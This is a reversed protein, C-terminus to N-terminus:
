LEGQVGENPKNEEGSDGSFDYGVISSAYDKWNKDAKYWEVSAEPVYIKMENHTGYFVRSRLLPPLESECYVSKLASCYEFARENILLTNEPITISSLNKCNGFAYKGICDINNNLVVSKLHDYGYFAHPLIETVTDPIVIDTTLKGNVYLRAEDNLSLPNTSSYNTWNISCWHEISDVYVAILNTCDSFAFSGVTHVNDGLKVTRINDCNLFAYPGIETVGNGIILETVSDLNYFAYSSINAVDDPIALTSAIPENDIYLQIKGYYLPNCTWTEFHISCWTKFSNVYLKASVYDGFMEKGMRRISDPLTFSKLGNCGYFAKSGIDTVGEPIVVDELGGCGYFAGDCITKLNKGWVIKKVQTLGALSFKEIREVGDPITLTEGLLEGGAYLEEAFFLPCSDQEYYSIKMLSELNDAHVSKINDCGRFAGAGVTNLGNGLVVNALRACGSFTFDGITKVSRPLTISNLKDCHGFAGKGIVEIGEALVVNELNDCNSFAYDPIEKVSGPVTVSKVGAFGYFAYNSITEVSEPIIIETTLKGDVYLEEFNNLSGQYGHDLNCWFEISKIHITKLNTCSTFPNGLKKVSEPIGVTFLNSCGYFTSSLEVIGTFFSLENFNQIKTNNKFVTGLSKVEAAEGFSLEGDGDKDWNAVCIRKVEMDAFPIAVVDQTIPQRSVRIVEGNPFTFSVYLADQTITVGDVVQISDNTIKCFQAWTKGGDTSILWFGDEAKVQPTEYSDGNALVKNGAADKLWEGNFTWYYLGDTDKRVGIIPNVNNYIVIPAKKHFKIIYGVVLGNQVYPEIDTIYDLSDISGILAKVADITTNIENCRIQLAEFASWTPLKLETGDALTFVVYDKSTVYDVGTFMSGTGTGDTGDAGDEGDEGTAKGLKNWSIGDDYSIYWFEDEIKLKPTVGDKGDAGDKGDEGNEGDVGDKGDEGDKGNEGDAGDTGVAKVKKGEGDLLWEGDLTWYYIGDTDKGVGIIPAHGDKGDVGDKGDAGDKGDTGDKGHYVTVSNGKSFSIVYGVERGNQQLPTVSTVYDGVEIANVISQLSTINTNFEECMKELKVVRKELDDLRSNLGTLDFSELFDGECSTLLM